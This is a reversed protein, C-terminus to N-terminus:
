SRLRHTEESDEERQQKFLELGQRAVVPNVTCQHGPHAPRPAVEISAFAMVRADDPGDRHQHGHRASRQDVQQDVGVAEQQCQCEVHQQQVQRQAKTLEAVVEGVDAFRKRTGVLDFRSSQQGLPAVQVRALHRAGFQDPMHDLVRQQSRVPM